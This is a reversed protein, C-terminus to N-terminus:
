LSSRGAKENMLVLALAKKARHLYTRVTGIPLAMMAAVEVYSKEEMYFLMLAQRYNEPLQQMAHSLDPGSHVNPEAAPISEALQQLNADNGSLQTRVSTRRMAAVATLCTNRTIAYVWTSVSSEGRYSPLARWIRVCVDQAADEAQSSNGIMSYALRMIKNRYRQLLLDFADEYLGQNLRIRIDDDSNESAEEM